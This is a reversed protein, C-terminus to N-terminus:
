RKLGKLFKKKDESLRFSETAKLIAKNHTKKDLSNTTLFTITRDYYKVLTEAILWSVAMHVYYLNTNCKESLAYILNLYKDEVYFHLLTVLSFRQYFEGEKEAYKLVYPLFEDRHNQISKPVFCDCTAWNNILPICRDIYRIFEDYKLYSVATLKVFTVEYYEDPFSLLEDLSNKYQKAIKRLTPVRVGLVAIGDNKLLRKHFNKYSEDAAEKLQTLLQQYPM